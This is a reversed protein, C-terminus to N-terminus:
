PLRIPSKESSRGHLAGPSCMRWYADMSRCDSAGTGPRSPLFLVCHAFHFTLCQTRGAWRTRKGAERQESRACYQWFVTAEEGSSYVRRARHGALRGKWVCVSKPPLFCSKKSNREKKVEMKFCCLKKNRDFRDINAEIKAEVKWVSECAPRRAGFRASCKTLEPRNERQGFHEGHASNWDSFLMRLLESNRCNPQSLRDGSAM